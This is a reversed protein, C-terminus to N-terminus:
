FNYNIMVQFGKGAFMNKSVTQLSMLQVNMPNWYAIGYINFNDYTRSYSLYNMTKNMEALYFVMTSLNDLVTLPYSLMSGIVNISNGNTIFEEGAHYRFCELTAGVGNGWPFTYDVGITWLDQVKPTNPISFDKKNIITTSAEVWLGIGLDWKGDLGFRSENLEYDNNPISLPLNPVKVKRFHTNLGLEGPGLPTQIRGGVEPKWQVSGYLEYGKAKKNGLLGWLWINANNKFFYKGLVAYVGDTFQLPDRIDMSDFWMLPRFMKAQGFNIKQLGSRIEWNSLSYRLWVRYPKVQGLLTDFGPSSFNLTANLNASAEFDLHSNQELKFNGLVTPVFRGGFQTPFTKELQVIGWTTLQGNFSINTSDNQASLNSCVLAFLIIVFIDKM